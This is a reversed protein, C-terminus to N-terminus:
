PNNLNFLININQLRLWVLSWNVSGFAFIWRWDKKSFPSYSASYPISILTQCKAMQIGDGNGSGDLNSKVKRAFCSIESINIVKNQKSGDVPVIFVGNCFCMWIIEHTWYETLEIRNLHSIMTAELRHAINESENRKHAKLKPKAKGLWAM